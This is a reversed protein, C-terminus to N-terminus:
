PRADARSPLVVVTAVRDGLRIVDGVTTQVPTGAVVAYETGARVLGSGNTSRWDTIEIGDALPRALLHTKSLSRSDDVLAVAAAGPHEAPDPNRGILVPREVPVDQGSDFRLGYAPAPTPEPTPAPAPDQTPSPAPDPASAPAPEPTPAPAPDQTPS